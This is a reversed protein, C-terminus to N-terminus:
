RRSCPGSLDSRERLACTVLSLPQRGPYYDTRANRHECTSSLPPIYIHSVVTVLCLCFQFESHLSDSIQRYNCCTQQRVQDLGGKLFGKPMWVSVNGYLAQSAERLASCIQKQKGSFPPPGDWGSDRWKTPWTCRKQVALGAWCCRGSGPQGAPSQQAVRCKQFQGPSGSYLWYYLYWLFPLRVTSQFARTTTKSDYWTNLVAPQM